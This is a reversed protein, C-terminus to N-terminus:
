DQNAFLEITDGEALTVIAKKWTRTKGEINRMRKKKSKVNVTNVKLVKVDFIEEVAKAIEIKSATKAVEFTFRNYEQMDFSRETIVPRIIIQRAEM